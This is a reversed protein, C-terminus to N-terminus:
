FAIITTRHPWINWSSRIFTVASLAGYYQITTNSVPGLPEVIIATSGVIVWPLTGKSLHQPHYHSANPTFSPPIHNASMPHLVLLPQDIGKPTWVMKWFSCRIRSIYKRQTGWIRVGDWPAPPFWVDVDRSLFNLDHSWSVPFRRLLYHTQICCNLGGRSTGM